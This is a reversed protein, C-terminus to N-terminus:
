NNKFIKDFELNFELFVKVIAPDFHEGSESKIISVAEEHSLGDKYVRKQRLADYVDSLAVIRAELPIEEGQLNHCYGKGNWREHHYLAINEAISGLEMMEVLNRGLIVHKKMEEFEDLTLKGPKKLISDSIVIKGVDHLSAYEGVEQIFKYPCKLKEALFKSYLNVRLIHNGTDEDNLENAAEFSHVLARTIRKEKESAATAKKLFYFLMAIISLLVSSVMLLYKYDPNLKKLVKLETQLINIEALHNPFIKDFIQLLETDEKIKFGITQNGGIFGSVKIHNELYKNSIAMSIIKFDGYLYDIENNLIGNLSTSTDEYIKSTKFAPLYKLFKPRLNDPSVFGVKKNHIEKSSDIFDESIRSFVATHISYYPIYMSFDNNLFVNSDIAKIDYDDPNQTFIIPVEILFSLENLRDVIYGKYGTNTKYFLPLVNESSPILVKIVKYRKKLNKLIQNDNLLMKYFLPREKKLSARIEENTFNEKYKYVISHLEPLKKNVAMWLNSAPIQNLPTFKYTKLIDNSSKGILGDLSKNDLSKFGFNGDEEISILNNLDPFFDNMLIKDSTSPLIGIKYKSLQNIDISINKKSYIGLSYTNLTPVFFYKQERPYTKSPNFLIDGDANNLLTQFEERNGIKINFKLGTEYSIKKFFDIYVGGLEDNEKKFFYIHNPNYIFINFINKQNKNIWENEETTLNICFIQTFLFLFFITLKLFM